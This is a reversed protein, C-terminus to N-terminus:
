EWLWSESLCVGDPSSGGGRGAPLRSEEGRIGLALPYCVGYADGHGGTRSITFAALALLSRLRAFGDEEAGDVVGGDTFLVGLVGGLGGDGAEGGRAEVNGTSIDRASDLNPIACALTCCFARSQSQQRQQRQRQQQM